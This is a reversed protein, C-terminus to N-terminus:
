LFDGAKQSDSKLMDALDDVARDGEEQLKMLRMQDKM